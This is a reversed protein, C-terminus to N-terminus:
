KNRRDLCLMGHHRQTVHFIKYQEVFQARCTRCEAIATLQTFDFKGVSPMAQRINGGCLTCTEPDDIYKDRQEETLPM